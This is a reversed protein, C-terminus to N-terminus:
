GEIPLEIKFCAGNYGVIIKGSLELSGGLSQMIKKSISLGLGTHYENKKGRDTYFREFIKEKLQQDIGCCQDVLYIIIRNDEIIQIIKINSKKPSFSIANEIINIFVQALKSMNTQILISDEKSEFLIKIQKNNQAFSLKLDNIFKNLEFKEFKQKEVEAQTRTFESIDSILKNMRNLDNM